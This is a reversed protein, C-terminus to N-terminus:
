SAGEARARRRRPPTGSCTSGARGASGTASDTSAPRPLDDEHRDGGCPDLTAPPRDHKSLHSRVIEIGPERPEAARAHLRRRDTRARQGDPLGGPRPRAAADATGLRDITPPSQIVRPARRTRLPSDRAGERRSDRQTRNPRERCDLRSSKCAKEGLGPSDRPDLHSAIAPLERSNAGSIPAEPAFASALCV